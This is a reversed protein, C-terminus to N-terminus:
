KNELLKRIRIIARHQILKVAGESKNIVESVEKTSLDEVFRMIIVDREVDKLQQISSMILAIDKKDDIDSINPQFILKESVFEEDISIVTRSKRYNDIVLNRAIRYLWSSFPLGKESFGSINTWAKLFVQHTLDEAEERQGVKLLIFRYIAPLYHDYLRGFAEGGGGKAELILKHEDELM